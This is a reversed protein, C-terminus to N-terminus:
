LGYVCFAKGSDKRGQGMLIKHNKVTGNKHRKTDIGFYKTRESAIVSPVTEKIEKQSQNSICTNKYTGKTDQLM